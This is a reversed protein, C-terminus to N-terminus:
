WKQVANGKSRQWLDFVRTHSPKNKFVRYTRNWKDIERATLVASNQDSAKFHTSSM